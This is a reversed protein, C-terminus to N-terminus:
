NEALLSLSFWLFIWFNPKPAVELIRKESVGFVDLSHPIPITYGSGGWGVLPDPSADHAGGTPDPAFGQGFNFNQLVQIGFFGDPPVYKM